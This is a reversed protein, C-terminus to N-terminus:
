EGQRDDSHHREKREHRVLRHLLRYSEVIAENLCVM